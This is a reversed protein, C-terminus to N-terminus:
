GSRDLTRSVRKIRPAFEDAARKSARIREALDVVSPFRFIDTIAVECALADCLKRHAVVALLSDGGLSFFNETRGVRSINLTDRWVSAITAELEGQPAAHDAESADRRLAPLATRDIKGNPTLPMNAIVNFQAPAMFDPLAAKVAGRLREIDLTAGPKAVLYAALRNIGAAEERAIVVVERVGPQRALAAEIEGLEIRHGRIKVQHDLRGLFDLTGNGRYRVLDGTRYLRGGGATDFPDLCFREATLDPRNLYGRAVGAGGIFLEGPVGPPVPELNDDLVYLRTNSIPRGLPVMSADAGLCHTTSWITTETPGYMNLLDGKVLPRLEEALSTPFAEGGIMLCRLLALADLDSRDALMIRALSPTCQLHTVGHERIQDLIGFRARGAVSAAFDKVSRLDGLHDLVQQSDVGFDILCALEDVGITKIKAIMKACTAPTGFLGSTEFYREFAHDILADMETASLDKADFMETPSKGTEASRRAFPPFSWAARRILDVSSRLYEKMPGRVIERVALDDDGVFSHLMLTVHGAGAHGSERWASRYAALKESLDEISQGLLHTLLNVGMEGAQRFTEPNGAATIWVPLEPQVPRPLTGIQVEKGTPGPFAIKEGRWLRRVVEIDRFMAEKRTAFNQPAIVFDDPQWGSAFSIGVRGHSLNDVLAWEEAVRIPSHLPMVCSGARIKVRQTVAAIAAGAVSPNPYLGGFAHFHREPTWVASFGNRDAFKAGELLLRYRDAVSEGEDSAFYFLSMEMPKPAVQVLKEVEPGGRVPLGNLPAPDEEITEDHLIIKFGRALTWLLELVSIDFSLSTVALWVGPPDHAIRADMGAFFNIVNRHRVMVGKPVGTSGSTYIVYALHDPTVDVALTGAATEAPAESESVAPTEADRDVCLVSAKPALRPVLRSQTLLVSIGADETMFSLRASPYAPDLPLYAAGAKLVALLGVMMDLSREMFLGVIKDPGAGLAALRRALRNAREDLERYTLTRGRFQVAISDPRKAVESEIAHHVCLEAPTDAVTDNWEVLIRRRESASLLSLERLSAGPSEFMQALFAGLGQQMTVAAEDSVVARDYVLSCAGGDPSLVFVLEAGLDPDFTGLPLGEAIRIAVPTAQRPAAFTRLGGHRPLLKEGALTKSRLLFLDAAIRRTATEVPAAPDLDVRLSITLNDGGKRGAAPPEVGAARSKEESVSLYFQRQGTLRVLYAAFGAILIDCEFAQDPSAHHSGQQDRVLTEPLAIPLAMYGSAASVSPRAFPLQLAIPGEPPDSRNENGIGSAPSPATAGPPAPTIAASPEAAVANLEPQLRAEAYDPSM